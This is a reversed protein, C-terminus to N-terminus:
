FGSFHADEFQKVYPKNLKVNDIFKLSCSNDFVEALREIPYIDQRKYGAETARQSDAEDEIIYIKHCGDYVFEKGDIVQGNVTKITADM